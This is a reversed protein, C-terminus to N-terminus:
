NLVMGYLRIPVSICIWASKVVANSLPSHDFESWPWRLGLSLDLPVWQIPPQTLKLAPRSVISFHFDRAVLSGNITWSKAQRLHM